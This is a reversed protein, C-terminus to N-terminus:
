PTCRCHAAIGFLAGWFHVYSKYARAAEDVRAPEAASEIITDRLQHELPSITIYHLFPHALCWRGTAGAIPSEVKEM